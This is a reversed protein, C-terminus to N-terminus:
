RSSSWLMIVNDVLLPPQSVALSSFTLLVFCQFLLAIILRPHLATNVGTLTELPPTVGSLSFAPLAFISTSEVDTTWTESLWYTLITIDQKSNKTIALGLRNSLWCTVTGNTHKPLM